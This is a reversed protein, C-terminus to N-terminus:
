RPRWPVALGATALAVGMSPNANQASLPYFRLFDLVVLAEVVDLVRM